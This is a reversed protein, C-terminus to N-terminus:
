LPADRRRREARKCAPVPGYVARCWAKLRSLPDTPGERARTTEPSFGQARVCNESIEERLRGERDYGELRSCAAWALAQDRRQM